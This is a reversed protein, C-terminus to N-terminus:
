SGSEATSEPPLWRVRSVDFEVQARDTENRITALQPDATDLRVVCTHGDHLNAAISEVDSKVRGAHEAPSYTGMAEAPDRYGTGSVMRFAECADPHRLLVERFRGGDVRGLLRGNERATRDTRYAHREDSDGDSRLRDSVDDMVGM